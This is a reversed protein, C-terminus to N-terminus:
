QFIMTLPFPLKKLSQRNNTHRASIMRLNVSKQNFDTKPLFFANIYRHWHLRKKQQRLCTQALVAIPSTKKTTISFFYCSGFYRKQCTEQEGISHIYRLVHKKESKVHKDLFLYIETSMDVGVCYLNMNLQNYVWLSSSNFITTEITKCSM